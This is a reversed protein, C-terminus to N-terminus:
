WDEKLIIYGNKITVMSSKMMDTILETVQQANWGFMTSEEILQKRPMMYMGDKHIGDTRILKKIQILPIGLAIDDRWRKEREILEVVRKDTASITITPDIERTSLHYGLLIRDFISSEFSNIKLRKYM